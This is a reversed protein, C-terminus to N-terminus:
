LDNLIHILVINSSFKSGNIFHTMINERNSFMRRNLIAM